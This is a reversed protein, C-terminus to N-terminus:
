QDHAGNPRFLPHLGNHVLPSVGIARGAGDAGALHHVYRGSALAAAYLWFGDTDARILSLTSLTGM